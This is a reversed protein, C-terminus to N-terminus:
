LTSRATNYVDVIIRSNQFIKSSSFFSVVPVVTSHGSNFVGMLKNEYIM